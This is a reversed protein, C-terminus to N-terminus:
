TEDETKKAKTKRAARSSGRNPRRKPKEEAVVAQPEVNEVAPAEVEPVVAEVVPEEKTKSSKRTRKTTKKKPEEVVAEPVVGTEPVSQEEVQAGVPAEM